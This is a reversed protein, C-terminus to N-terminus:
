QAELVSRLIHLAALVKGQSVPDPLTARIQELDAVTQALRETLTAPVSRTQDAPMRTYLAQLQRQFDQAHAQQRDTFADM